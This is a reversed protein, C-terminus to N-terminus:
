HDASDPPNLRMVFHDLQAHDVTDLAHAHDALRRALVSIVRRALDDIAAAHDEPGRADIRTVTGGSGQPFHDLHRRGAM